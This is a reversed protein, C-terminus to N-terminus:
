LKEKFFLKNMKHIENFKILSSNQITYFIIFIHYLTLKKLFTFWSVSLIFQYKGLPDTASPVVYVGSINETQLM